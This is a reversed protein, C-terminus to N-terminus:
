NLYFGLYSTGTQTAMTGLGLNARATAVNALDGLNNSIRLAPVLVGSVSIARSSGQPGDTTDDVDVGYLLDADSVLVGSLQPLASLKSSAM